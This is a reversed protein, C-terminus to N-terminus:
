GEDIESLRSYKWGGEPVFSHPDAIYMIAEAESAPRWGEITLDWL